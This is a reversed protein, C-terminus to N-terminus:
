PHLKKGLATAKHTNLSYEFSRRPVPSFLKNAVNQLRQPEILLERSHTLLETGLALIDVTDLPFTMQQLKNSSIPFIQSPPHITKTHNPHISIKKPCYQNTFSHSIVEFPAKLLHSVTVLFPYFSITDCM